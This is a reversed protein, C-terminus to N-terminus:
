IEAKIDEGQRLMSHYGCPYIVQLREELSHKLGIVEDKKMEKVCRMIFYINLINEPNCTNILLTFASM